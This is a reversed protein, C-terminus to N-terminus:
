IRIIQWILGLIIHERKDVISNNNINVCICGIAKASAIALTLNENAKFINLNKINIARHDITGPQAKNVLKCLLVGDGVSEFLKSSPNIPLREKLDEDDALFFNIHEVYANVEDETFSHVANSDSVKNEVSTKVVTKLNDM